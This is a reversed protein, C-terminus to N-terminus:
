LHAWARGRGICNATAYTVGFRKAIVFMDAGWRWLERIELAQADTLKVAWHASGRPKGGTRRRGKAVMDASNDLNTGLFLHAPNVCPPNDCRHCVLMGNPIPGNALRWSVRHARANRRGEACFAGYNSDFRGAQWEWCDAPGRKDVKAWFRDQLSSL